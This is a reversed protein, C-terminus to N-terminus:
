YFLNSRQKVPTEKDEMEVATEFEKRHVGNIKDDVRSDNNNNKNSPQSSHVLEEPKAVNALEESQSLKVLNVPQRTTEETDYAKNRLNHFAEWQGGPQNQWRNPTKHNYLLPLCWLYQSDARFARFHEFYHQLIVYIM